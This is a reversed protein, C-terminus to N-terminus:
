SARGETAAIQACALADELLLIREAMMLMAMQQGGNRDHAKQLYQRVIAEHNTM